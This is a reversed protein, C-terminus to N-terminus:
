PTGLLPIYNDNPLYKRVVSQKKYTKVPGDKLWKPKFTKTLETAIELKETLLDTNLKRAKEINLYFGYTTQDAIIAAAKHELTIVNHPPFNDKDLLFLLLKATLDVDQNCYSAMEQNMHSFDHFDIKFDGLRQGFAKLAYSGWLDKDIRLQADISVLEDKSFILKAITMTDLPIAKLNIALHKKIEPIDFAVINHGCIYDCSNLITISQLLSGNSYPTWIKTFVKSPTVTAIGNSDITVLSVGNMYIETTPIPDTELDFVAITKNHLWTPIM